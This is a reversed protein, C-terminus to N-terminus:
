LLQPGSNGPVQNFHLTVSSTGSRCLLFRQFQDPIHDKILETQVSFNLFERLVFSFLAKPRVKVGMLVYLYMYM